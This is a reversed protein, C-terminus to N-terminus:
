IHMGMMEFKEVCHTLTFFFFFLFSISLLRIEYGKNHLKHRRSWKYVYPPHPKPSNLKKYKQCLFASLFKHKMVHIKQFAEIM